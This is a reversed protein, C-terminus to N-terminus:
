TCNKCNGGFIKIKLLNRKRQQDCFMCLLSETVVQIRRPLKCSFVLSSLPVFCVGHMFCCVVILGFYFHFFNLFSEEKKRSKNSKHPTNNGTSHNYNNRWSIYGYNDCVSNMREDCNYMNWIKSISSSSSIFSQLWTFIKTLPISKYPWKKKKRKKKNQQWDSKSQLQLM